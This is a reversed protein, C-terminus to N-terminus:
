PQSTAPSYRVSCRYRFSLGPLAVETCESSLVRAGAPLKASAQKLATAQDIISEAWVEDARAAIPQFLLLLTLLPAIPGAALPSRLIPM